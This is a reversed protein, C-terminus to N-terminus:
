IYEINSYIDSYKKIISASSDISGDDVCVIYMNKFNINNIVSKLTDDIFKELNYVTIVLGLM